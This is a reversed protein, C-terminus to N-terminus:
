AYRWGLKGHMKSRGAIANCVGAQSFGDKGVYFPLLEGPVSFTYVLFDNM